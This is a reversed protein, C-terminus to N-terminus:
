PATLKLSNRFNDWGQVDFTGSQAVYTIMYLRNNSFVLKMAGGNKKKSKKFIFNVEGYGPAYSESHNKIKLKQEKKLNEELSQMLIRIEADKISKGEGAVGIISMTYIDGASRCTYTRSSAEDSQEATESAKVNEESCPFRLSFGMSDDRLKYQAQLTYISGCFLLISILKKM